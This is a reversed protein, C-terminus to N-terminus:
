HRGRVSNLGTIQSMSNQQPSIQRTCQESTLEAFEVQNPINTCQIAQSTTSVSTRAGSSIEEPDRLNLIDCRVPSRTLTHNFYLENGYNILGSRSRSFSSPTGSPIGSYHNSIPAINTVTFIGGNASRDDSSIGNSRERHPDDESYPPPPSSTSEYFHGYSPPPPQGYIPYQNLMQLDSANTTTIHRSRHNMHLDLIRSRKAKTSKIYAFAIGILLAVVGLSGIVGAVCALINTSNTGENKDLLSDRPGSKYQARFGKSVMSYDSTFKITMYNESSVYTPVSNGCFFGLSANSDSNGDFAEARDYLCESQYEILSDLVKMQIAYTEQEAELIWICILENFYGRPYNVSTLTKYTTAAVYEVSSGFCQCLGLPTFVSIIMLTYLDLPFANQHLIYDAFMRNFM